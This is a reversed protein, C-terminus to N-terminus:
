SHYEWDLWSGDYLRVNPYGLSRLLLYTHAARVGSRCYTVVTKDPTIGLGALEVALREPSDFTDWGQGPLANAWDWCVAGPLHGRAFEGPDRTDLLVLDPSSARALLWDRDVIQRDDPRATFRVTQPAHSQHTLRRGETVWRRVGGTLVAAAGHGYCALAWLVRAAHMGWNDDYLVVISQADIGLRGVESAFRDPPALMGEVSATPDQLAGLELSLAGPIHGATYFAYPRVDLLRLLPHDLRAQLWDPAVLLGPLSLFPQGAEGAATTTDTLNNEESMEVAILYESRRLSSQAPTKDSHCFIIGGIVRHFSLQRV